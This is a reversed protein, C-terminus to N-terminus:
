WAAAVETAAISIIRILKGSISSRLSACQFNMLARVACQITVRPGFQGGGRNM